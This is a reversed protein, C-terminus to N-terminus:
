RGVNLIDCSKISVKNLLILLIPPKLLLGVLKAKLDNLNLKKSAFVKSQSKELLTSASVQLLLRAATGLLSYEITCIGSSSIECNCNSLSVLKSLSSM